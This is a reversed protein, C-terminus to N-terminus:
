VFELITLEPRANFRMKFGSMGVGRTVYLRNQKYSYWGMPFASFHGSGFRAYQVWNFRRQFPPLAPNIQGGHNHGSLIVHAFHPPFDRIFDPNHNLLLLPREGKPFRERLAKIDPEGKVMDDIGAIWGTQGNYNVQCVNDVLMEVGAQQMGELIRKWDDRRGFYDHNGMIGVVPIGAEILPQMLEIMHPNWKGYNFMDGGLAVLDPKEQVIREITKYLILHPKARRGLHLDSIFAVRFGKWAPNLGELESVQITPRTVDLWLPEIYHSYYWTPFALGLGAAALKLGTKLSWCERLQALNKM